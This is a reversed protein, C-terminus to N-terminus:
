RQQSRKATHLPSLGVKQLAPQRLGRRVKVGAPRQRLVSVACALGVYDSQNTFSSGLAEKLEPEEGHEHGPLAEKGAGLDASCSSPVGARTRPASVVGCERPKQGLAYAPGHYVPPM